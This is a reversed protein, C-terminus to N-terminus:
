SCRPNRSLYPTPPLMLQYVPRFSSLPSPENEFFSITRSPTCLQEHEDRFVELFRAIRPDTVWFFSKVGTAARKSPIAVLKNFRCDLYTFLNPENLFRSSFASYKACPILIFFSCLKNFYCNANTCICM